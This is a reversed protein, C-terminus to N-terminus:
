FPLIEDEEYHEIEMPAAEARALDRLYQREKGRAINEKHTVLSLHSPRRCSPEECAHDFQWGSARIECYALFLDDREMPGLHDLLWAVIHASLRVQRGGLGRIRVDLRSYGGRCIPGSTACWCPGLKEDQGYWQWAERTAAKLTEATIPAPQSM